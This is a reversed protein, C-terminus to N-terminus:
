MEVIEVLTGDPARLTGARRGDYICSDHVAPPTIWLDANRAEIADFNPHILTGLAVGQPLEGDYHPRTTAQPPYQDLELFVDRGHVMTSIVHLDDVPLGFANALMTYVIELKRRGVELGAHEALWDLSANMDSCALVLIFLRDIPAAARPLDFEPLDDRIQTLYAIEGDPGKVQMPYIADLGEIERPPGIIEFPSQLMRENAALVDQVCIEIAAWGYSRLPVYDPHIRNEVLRIFNDRGSAPRLVAFRRGAAQPTGWSASLAGDLEGREAVSFDLWECYNGITRELDAVSLTAARLLKM